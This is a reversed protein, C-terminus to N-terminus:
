QELLKKLVALREDIIEEECSCSETNLNAGCEGCLGLCGESCLFNMPSVVFFNKVALEGVDLVTGSLAVDDEGVIESLEFDLKESIPALCRGCATDVEASIDASVELRGSFNLVRGHIKLKVFLDSETHFLEGDFPTQGGDNNIISILDVNM